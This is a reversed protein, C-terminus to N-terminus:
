APESHAFLRALGPYPRLGIVEFRILGEAVLPLTNLVDQAAQVAECELVLVAEHRVERFYMERMVDAQMLEWARLAENRLHREFDAAKKDPVEHEIALIKM